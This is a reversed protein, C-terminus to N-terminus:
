CQFDAKKHHEINVSSKGLDKELDIGFQLGDVFANAKEWGKDHYSDGYERLKVGSLFVEVSVYDHEFKWDDLTYHTIIEVLRKDNKM